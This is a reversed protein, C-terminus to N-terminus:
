RLAADGVCQGARQSARWAAGGVFEDAGRGARAKAARIGIGPSFRRASLGRLGCYFWKAVRVKAASPAADSPADVDRWFSEIEKWMRARAM